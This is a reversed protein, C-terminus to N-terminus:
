RSDIELVPKAPPYNQALLGSAYWVFHLQLCFNSESVESAIKPALQVRLISCHVRPRSLVRDVNLAVESVNVLILKLWGPGPLLHNARHSAHEAGQARRPYSM